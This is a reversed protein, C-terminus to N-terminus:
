SLVRYKTNPPQPICTLFNDVRKRLERQQMKRLISIVDMPTNNAISAPVLELPRPGANTAVLRDDLDWGEGIPHHM